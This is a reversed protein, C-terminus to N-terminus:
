ESLGAAELAETQTAYFVWRVVKGNRFVFALAYPLADVEVGSGRGHLRQKHILVVVTQGRDVFEV